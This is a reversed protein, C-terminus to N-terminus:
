RRTMTAPLHRTIADPLNRVSDALQALSDQLADPLKRLRGPVHREAWTEREGLMTTVVLGIGFGIGFGILVSPMPNRAMMGEARRYQRGMEDRASDYGERLREGAQEAGDQVRQGLNQLTERAGKSGAGGNHRGQDQPRGPNEPPM